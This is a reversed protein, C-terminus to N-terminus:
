PVEPRGRREMCNRITGTRGNSAAGALVSSM